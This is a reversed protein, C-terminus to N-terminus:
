HQVHPVLPRIGYDRPVRIQQLTNSVHDVRSGSVHGPKEPVVQLFVHTNQTAGQILVQVVCSDSNMQDKSGTSFAGCTVNGLM